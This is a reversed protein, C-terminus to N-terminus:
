GDADARERRVRRELRDILRHHRTAIASASRMLSCRHRAGAAVHSRRPRLRRRRRPRRPRDAQAPRDAPRGPEVEERHAVAIAGVLAATLLLGAVEFAIVYRTMLEDGVVKAMDNVAEARPPASAPRRGTSAPGSTRPRGRHRTGIARRTLQDRLGAGPFRGAGRGARSAALGVAHERSRRGPYQADAHHRVDPHDRGRRYLGAGPAGGPVRSGAARVPLRGHLLVRGPYLAARVLNRALMTGLAAALGVAAIVVFLVQIVIAVGGSHSAKSERDGRVRASASTEVMREASSRPRLPRGRGAADPRGDAMGVRAPRERGDRRNLWFVLWIAPILILSTVLGNGLDLEALVVLGPRIVIEYWVGAALINVIALPVLYKWAFNMLRDVRMRPLTVRVWFM